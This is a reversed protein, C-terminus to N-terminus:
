SRSKVRPARLAACDAQESKTVSAGAGMTQSLIAIGQACDQVAESMRGAKALVKARNVLLDGHNPHLKGYSVDYNHKADDLSALAGPTDGRDSQVLALYVDAIGILFHPGGFAKRYIAIAERLSREAEPLRALGKDINGQLLLSEALIPNDPQLVRREIALANGIQVRAAPLDNIGGMDHAQMSNLALAYWAQGTRLESDGVNRRYLDLSRQLAQDAAKYQGDDTLLVGKNNLVRAVDKPNADPTRAYYALARDFAAIGAKVDTKATLIRGRTSEAAGRVDTSKGLDPGLQREVLGVAKLADDLRGQFMLTNALDLQARAGDSGARQLQPLAPELAARAEAYLGLNNYANGLVDLFQAQVEPQGRLERRAREASGNLIKVVTIDHPNEKGPNTNEFTDILFKSVTTAKALQQQAEIRQYNAYIALGGTVVMGAVSAATVIAMRQTRRQQERQVLDDLRLGTLGAVLKLKALRRGDSGPRIDAALPETRVDSLEGDPGLKYRLSRPFCEDPSAPDKDSAWPVGDVVLALVRGEGHMRKFALIEEHVWHSAAGSPSCIVILFMSGRLAAMLQTGLDSSAPLEERDRFIPHLRRPVDGVATVRGVLKSPIRYGELQRHVSAAYPKDRHSYSIFARYAHEHAGEPPHPSAGDPM